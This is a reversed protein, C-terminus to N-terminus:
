EHGLDEIVLYHTICDALYQYKQLVYGNFSDIHGVTYVVEGAALIKFLYPEFPVLELHNIKKYKM